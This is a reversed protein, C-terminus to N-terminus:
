LGWVGFFSSLDWHDWLTWAGYLGLGMFGVELLGLGWLFLEFELSGLDGFFYRFVLSGLGM